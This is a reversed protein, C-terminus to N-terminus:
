GPKIWSLESTNLAAKETLDLWRNGANSGPASLGGRSVGSVRHTHEWSDPPHQPSWAPGWCHSGALSGAFGLYPGMPFLLGDREKFRM